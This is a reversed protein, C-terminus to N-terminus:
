ATTKAQRILQPNRAFFYRERSLRRSETYETRPESGTEPVSPIAEQIDLARGIIQYLGPTCRALYIGQVTRITNGHTAFPYYRPHNDM